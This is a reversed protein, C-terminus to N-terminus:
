MTMSAESTDEQECDSELSVECFIEKNQLETAFQLPRIYIDSAMHAEFASRFVDELTYRHWITEGHEMVQVNEEDLDFKLIATLNEPMPISCIKEFEDPTLICEWNLAEAFRDYLCDSNRRVYQCYRYAAQYFGVFSSNAFIMEEGNEKVCCLLYKQEGSKLQEWVARSEKIQKSDTAQRKQPTTQRYLEGLLRFLEKQLSSGKAQFYEEMTQLRIENYYISLCKDCPLLEDEQDKNEKVLPISPQKM